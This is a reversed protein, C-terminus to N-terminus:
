EVQPLVILMSVGNELMKSRMQIQFLNEAEALDSM